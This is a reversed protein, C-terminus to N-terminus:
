RGGMTAWDTFLHVPDCVAHLGTHGRNGIQVGHFRCGADKSQKVEDLAAHPVPWEGDSVFLVDAKKWNEERLKALAKRLVGVEDNGGGFSFGLFDLLRGIGEPTLSLEHETIDGPGSYAYLFCKRKEAHATRVAELVLAKAVQEPLGHMSGSTDVIALIPGRQPRPTKKEQEEFSDREVLVKEYDTGEIRYTILAREARRAHWLFRLKPHGLMSAEVPLMRSIEGSREIGRMESPVHPTRIERREEEMRKVPVLIKESVSEGSDSMQLRGLSKIIEKLQPLREVLEKLRATNLWGTHKLIGRSFDWGRGMLDGLQGFVSSLSAWMRVREGWGAVLSADEAHQAGAVEREAQQRLKDRTAEDLEVPVSERKEREANRSEEENARVRELEELERLRDAVENRRLASQNAFADLIDHLLAEVLEPQERAFRCIGMGTLADRVPKAVEPTPWTDEPPLEGALLADRWRNLGTVREQLTGLPLPILKKRFAKPCQALFDYSRSLATADFGAPM